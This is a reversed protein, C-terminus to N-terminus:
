IERSIEFEDINEIDQNPGMFVIRWKLKNQIKKLNHYLFQRKFSTFHTPCLFINESKQLLFAIITSWTRMANIPVNKINLM